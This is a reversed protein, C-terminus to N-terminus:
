LQFTQKILEADRHHLDGTSIRVMGGPVLAITQRFCGPRGTQLHAAGHEAEGAFVVGRRLGNLACAAEAIWRRAAFTQFAEAPREVARPSQSQGIQHQVGSEQRLRSMGIAFREEVCEALDTGQGCFFADGDGKLGALFSSVQKAEGEIFQLAGIQLHIEIRGVHQKIILTIRETSHLDQSRVDAANVDLVGISRCPGADPALFHREALALDVDAGKHQGQFFDTIASRQADLALDAILLFTQTVHGVADAKQTLTQVIGLGNTLILRTEGHAKNWAAAPANARRASRMSCRARTVSRRGCRRVDPPCRNPNVRRCQRLRHPIRANAPSGASASAPNVPQKSLTAAVVHCCAAAASWCKWCCYCWLRASCGRPSPFLVPMAHCNKGCTPWNWVNRAAVPAPSINWRRWGAARRPRSFSQRIRCVSRRCRWRSM